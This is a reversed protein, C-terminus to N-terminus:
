SQAVSKWPRRIPEMLGRFARESNIDSTHQSLITFVLEHAPDLRPEEPFPGYQDSMLRIAESIGVGPEMQETPKTETSM